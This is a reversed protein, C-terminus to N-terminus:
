KLHTRFTYINAKLMKIVKNSSRVYVRLKPNESEKQRYEYSVRLCYFHVYITKIPNASLHVSEETIVLIQFFVLIKIM